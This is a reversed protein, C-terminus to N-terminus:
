LVNEYLRCKAKQRKPDLFVGVVDIQFDREDKHEAMYSQATKALKELKAPHVREEPRYDGSERSIDPLTERAVAKVEVMHVTDGHEAIIDVEGWPKRYNRAIVRFGKNELFQAAVDEGM